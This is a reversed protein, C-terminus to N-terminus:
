RHPWTAEDISDRDGRRFDRAEVRNVYDLRDHAANMIANLDDRGNLSKIKSILDKIPHKSM